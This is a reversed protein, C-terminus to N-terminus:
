KPQMAKASTGVKGVTGAASTKGVSGAPACIVYITAHHDAADQNKIWAVWGTASFNTGGNDGPFSANVVQLISTTNVGGGVAYYGADCGVYGFETSNAHNLLPGNSRYIL